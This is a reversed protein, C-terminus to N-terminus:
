IRVLLLRYVPRWQNECVIDRESCVGGFPVHDLWLKDSNLLPKDYQLDIFRRESGEPRKYKDNLQNTTLTPKPSEIFCKTSDFISRIDLALEHWDSALYIESSPNLIKSLLLAFEYNVL